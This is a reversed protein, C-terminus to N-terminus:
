LMHRNHAIANLEQPTVYGNINPQLRSTPQSAAAAGAANVTPKMLGTRQLQEMSTYGFSNATPAPAPTPALTPALPKLKHLESAQVYNGTSLLNLPTSAVASTATPPPAVAVPTAATAASRAQLLQVPVYGGMPMAMGAPLMPATVPVYGSMPMAMSAPPTQTPSWHKLQTPKIYGASPQTPKSSQLESSPERELERERERQREQDRPPTSQLETANAHSEDDDNAMRSMCMYSAPPLTMGMGAQQDEYSDREICNGHGGGSSNALLLKSSENGSGFDHPLYMPSCTPSADVRTCIIGGNVASAMGMGNGMADIGAGKDPNKLNEMIGPPLVLDIDSMKRVKRYLMNCAVGVVIIAIIVELSNLIAKARTTDPSCSVEYTSWASKHLRYLTMNEYLQLQQWQAGSLPQLPQCLQSGIDGAWVSSFSQYESDTDSIALPEVNVARVQYHFRYQPTCTQTIMKCSLNGNPVTAITSLKRWVLTNNDNLESLAVEYYELRGAPLEPAVWALVTSQPTSQVQLKPTSPVGVATQFNIDNSPESGYLTIARISVSYHTYASLNRLEYVIPQDLDDDQSGPLRFYDTQNTLLNIFRGQYSRLKGNFKLPPLWSLQVSSNSLEAYELQRPPSPAAEATQNILEDSNKSHTTQSYMNMKVSYHTYPELGGITYDVADPDLVKTTCNDPQKLVRQCYTLEYGRLIAPCVHTSWKVTLSTNTVEEISPKIIALDDTGDRSCIMWHMGTNHEAYNASVALNIGIPYSSTTYHLQDRAVQVFQISGNCMSQVAPLKKCWYVTYNLLGSTNEPATWSLTYSTNSAHYESRIKTPVRVRSDENSIAPILLRTAEVSEGAINKSRIFVEYNTSRTWNQITALNLEVLVESSDARSGNKRYESIVYQFGDGNLEHPQLQEWYFTLKTETSYVYFSGNTVRPPRRPREPDTRFNYILPESWRSKTINNRVRLELRYNYGAYILETLCLTDRIGTSSNSLTPVQVQPFNEPIVHVQWLVGGLFNSRRPMKFSICRSSATTNIVTLDFGPRALIMREMNNVHILQQLHGLSNNIDLRFEFFEAYRKYKEGTINCNILPSADFNCDIFYRYNTHNDTAFSVNHKTIISNRPMTFNCFMYDYNYSTCNFDTVLQPPTGVFVRSSVMGNTGCMCLYTGEQEQLSRATLLITTDNIRRVYSHNQHYMIEGDLLIAKFYLQSVDCTENTIPAVFYAKNITCSINLDSGIKLEVRDPVVWGPTSPVGLAPVSCLCIGLLGLLLMFSSASTKLRHM